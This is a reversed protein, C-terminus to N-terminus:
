LLLQRGGIYTNMFLRYQVCRSSFVQAHSVFRVV